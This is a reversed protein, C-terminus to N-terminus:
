RQGVWYTVSSQVNLIQEIRETCNEPLFLFYLSKSSFLPKSFQYLIGTPFNLENQFPNSRSEPKAM